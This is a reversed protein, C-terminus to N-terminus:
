MKQGCATGIFTRRRCALVGLLAIAALIITGPEAAATWVQMAPPAAHIAANLDNFIRLADISTAFGDGSVDLFSPPADPRDAPYPLRRSGNVNLDNIVHLADISSVVRDSNVDLPNAPNMWSANFRVRGAPTLTIAANLPNGDLLTGTLYDGSVGSLSLDRGFVNITGGESGTCFEDVRGGFINAVSADFVNIERIVGGSVNVVSFEHADVWGVSGGLVDIISSDHSRLAYDITGGSIVRVTTAGGPGDHVWV